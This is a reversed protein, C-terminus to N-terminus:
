SDITNLGFPSVTKLKNMWFTERRLRADLSDSHVREIVVCKLDSLSHNPLNFHRTVLTGM